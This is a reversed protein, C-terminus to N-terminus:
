KKAGSNTKGGGATGGTSSSSSSSSASTGSSQNSQYVLTSLTVSFDRNRARWTVHLDIESLSNGPDTGLTTVEPSYWNNVEASWSYEPWGDASFDGALVGGNWQSTAILENLKSEALGAAENRRRADSAIATSITVAKMAVPLVIAMLMLTALVEILTFAERGM